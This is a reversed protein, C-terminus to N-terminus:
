PRACHNLHDILERPRSLWPSHDTQMVVVEDCPLDTCMMKQTAFPVARDLACQVYTRRVRGFRDASTQLWPTLALTSEPTLREIAAAADERSCCNYFWDRAVSRDTLFVWSGDASLAMPIRRDFHDREIFAEGRAMLLGAVFVLRSVKDPM